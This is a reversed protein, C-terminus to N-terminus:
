QDAYRKGVEIEGPVRPKHVIHVFDNLYRETASEEYDEEQLCKMVPELNSDM